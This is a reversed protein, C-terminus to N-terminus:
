MIFCSAPKRAAAQAARDQEVAEGVVKVTTNVFHKLMSASLGALSSLAAEREEESKNLVDVYSLTYRLMKAMEEEKEIGESCPQHAAIAAEVLRLYIKELAKDTAEPRLSLMLGLYAHFLAAKAKEGDELVPAGPFNFLIAPMHVDSIYERLDCRFKAEHAMKREIFATLLARELILFSATLGSRWFTQNFGEPGQMISMLAASNRPPSILLFLDVSHAADIVAAAVAPELAPTADSSM